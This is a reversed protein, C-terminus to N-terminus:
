RRPGCVHLLLNMSFASSVELMPVWQEATVSIAHFIPDQVVRLDHLVLLGARFVQPLLLPM